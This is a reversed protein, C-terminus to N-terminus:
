PQGVAPPSASPAATGQTSAVNAGSRLPRTALFSGSLILVFGVAIGANFREGLISVGLLVAVAPNVYTVVNSRMAGVEGILAFFAVFAVASCLVTLTAMSAVVSFSLPRSPLSFAAIPAYIVACLVLSCTVVGIGPLQSLYKSLIWPGLAYGIAVVGLSLAALLNSGAVDLGVLAGVGCIGLVLGATRRRDLRDTGTLQALVAGVIPVAAMLLAALSSTLRREANFLLLWPVGMEAVTYAVLPKWHQLVSTLMGRRAALPALLLAGGGTRVLVLLAPSVERVSVRILLYPIGWIIGLAVFLVWGRRTVTVQEDDGLGAV